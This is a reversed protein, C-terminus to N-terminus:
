HSHIESINELDCDTQYKCMTKFDRAIMRVRAQIALLSGCHGSVWLPFNNGEKDVVFCTDDILSCDKKECAWLNPADEVGNFGWVGDFFLNM